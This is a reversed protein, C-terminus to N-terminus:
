PASSTGAPLVLSSCFSKTAHMGIQPWFNHMMASVGTYGTGAVLQKNVAFGTKKNITAQKLASFGGIQLLSGVALQRNIKVDTRDLRQNDSMNMNVM